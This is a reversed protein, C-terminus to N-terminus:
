LENKGDSDKKNETGNSDTKNSSGFMKSLYSVVSGKRSQEGQHEPSSNARQYNSRSAQSRRTQRRSYNADSAVFFLKRAKENERKAILKEKLEEYPIIFERRFAEKPCIDQMLDFISKM